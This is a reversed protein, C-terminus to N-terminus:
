QSAALLLRAILPTEWYRGSTLSARRSSQFLEDLQQWCEPTMETGYCSLNQTKM